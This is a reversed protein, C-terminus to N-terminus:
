VVNTASAMRNKNDAVCVNYDSREQFPKLVGKAYIAMGSKDDCPHSTHIINLNAYMCIECASYIHGRTCLYYM